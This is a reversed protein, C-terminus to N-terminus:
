ACLAYQPDRERRDEGNCYVSAAINRESYDLRNDGWAIPRYGLLSSEASEGATSSVTPLKVLDLTVARSLLNRYLYGRGAEILEQPACIRKFDLFVKYQDISRLTFIGAGKDFYISNNHSLDVCHDIFICDSVKGKMLGAKAIQRWKSGGFGGDWRVRNTDFMRMGANLIDKASYISCDNYIACRDLESDYFVKLHQSARKRGHRLEAAVVSATYDFIAAAFNTIYRDRFDSFDQFWRAHSHRWSDFSRDQNAMLMASLAEMAYFEQVLEFIDM